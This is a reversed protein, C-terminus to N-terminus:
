WRWGKWVPNTTDYAFIGGNTVKQSPISFTKLDSNIKLRIFGERLEYGGGIPMSIAAASWESIPGTPGKILAAEDFPKLDFELFLMPSVNTAGPELGECDTCRLQITPVGHVILFSPTPKNTLAPDSSLRAFDAM